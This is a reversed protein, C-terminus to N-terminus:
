YRTFLHFRGEKIIYVSSQLQWDFMLIIYSSDRKDIASSARTADCRDVFKKRAGECERAGVIGGDNRIRKEEM